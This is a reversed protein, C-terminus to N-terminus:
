VKLWSDSRKSAMYTSDEDLSKVMLGECSAGFAEDLLNDLKQSTSTSEPQAEDSEVQM